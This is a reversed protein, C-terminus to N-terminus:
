GANPRKRRLQVRGNKPRTAGTAGCDHPLGLVAARRHPKIFCNNVLKAVVDTLYTGPNVTAIRHARAGGDESLLFRTKAISRL